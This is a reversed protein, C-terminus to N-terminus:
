VTNDSSAEARIEARLEEIFDAFRYHVHPEWSSYVQKMAAVSMGYDRALAEWHNTEASMYASVKDSGCVPCYRFAGIRVVPEIRYVRTMTGCTTTAHCKITVRNPAVEALKVTHGVNKPVSM